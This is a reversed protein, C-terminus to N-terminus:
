QEPTKLRLQKVMNAWRSVGSDVKQSWKAAISLQGLRRGVFQQAFWILMLVGALTISLVTLSDSLAIWIAALLSILFARAISLSGARPDEEIELHTQVAALPILILLFGLGIAIELM